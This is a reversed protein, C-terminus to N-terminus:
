WCWWLERNLGVTTDAMFSYCSYDSFARTLPQRPCPLPSQCPLVGFCTGRICECQFNSGNLLMQIVLSHTLRLFLRSLPALCPILIRASKWTQFIVVMQGLCFETAPSEHQEAANFVGVVAAVDECVNAFDGLVEHTAFVLTHLLVAARLLAGEAFRNRAFAVDSRGLNDEM